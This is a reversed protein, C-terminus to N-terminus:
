ACLGRKWSLRTCATKAARLGFQNETTKIFKGGLLKSAEKLEALLSNIKFRTDIPAALPSRVVRWMSVVYTISEAIRNFRYFRRLLSDAACILVFKSIAHCRYRMVWQGGHKELQIRHAPLESPIRFLGFKWRLPVIHQEPLSSKFRRGGPGSGSEPM